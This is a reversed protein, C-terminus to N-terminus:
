SQNKDNSSSSSNSSSSAGGGFNVGNWGFTNAVQGWAPTSWSMQGITYMPNTMWTNNSPTGYQYYNSFDYSPYTYINQLAMSHDWLQNMHLNMSNWPNTSIMDYNMASNYWM